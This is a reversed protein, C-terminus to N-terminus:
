RRGSAGARTSSTTASWRKKKSASNRATARSPTSSRTTSGKSPTATHTSSTRARASTSPRAPRASSALQRAPFTRTRPRARPGSGIAASASPSRRAFLVERRAAARARFSAAKELRPSSARARRAQRTRPGRQDGGGRASGPLRRPTAQPRAPRRRAREPGRAHSAGGQHSTSPGDRAGGQRRRARLPLFPRPPQGM